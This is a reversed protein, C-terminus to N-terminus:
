PLDGPAWYDLEVESCQWQSQLCNARHLLNSPVILDCYRAQGMIASDSRIEVSVGESRLRKTPLEASPVDTLTM